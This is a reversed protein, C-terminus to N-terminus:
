IRSEKIDLFTKVIRETGRGDVIRHRREAYEAREAPHNRFFILRDGIEKEIMKEERADGAYLMIQRKGMARTFDKQNDAMSFCVTPIKCACLEFLTTGGASVAMECSRMYRSMNKVNQHLEVNPHNQAIIRLEEINQNMSGVIVQFDYSAFAERDICYRLLRGTVDLHDTGGTTILISHMREEKETNESFEKRLPTYQMGALLLVKTDEYKVQYDYDDPWQSYHLLASVHYKEVGMDDVYCVPVLQNLFSLYRDTAQYSDVLLWDLQEEQIVKKMVEEESEMENWKTHLIRYPLNRDRLKQTEKEEALLFLCKEGKELFKEAIAICRMLHGTAIYENADVRFGIM